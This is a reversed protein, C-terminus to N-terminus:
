ISLSYDEINQVPALYFNAKFKNTFTEEVFGSFGAVSDRPFFPRFSVEGRNRVCHFTNKSPVSWNFLEGVQETWYITAM